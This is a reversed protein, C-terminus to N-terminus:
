LELRNGRALRTVHCSAIINCVGSEELCANAKFLRWSGGRPWTYSIELIVGREIRCSALWIAGGGGGGRRLNLRFKHFDLTRDRMLEMSWRSSANITHPKTGRPLHIYLPQKEFSDMHIHWGCLFIWWCYLNTAFRVDFHEACAMDCAEAFRQGAM